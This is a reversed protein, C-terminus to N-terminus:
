KLLQNVAALYNTLKTTKQIIKHAKKDGDPLLYQWFTKMKQLLQAEGGELQNRYTTFLHDHMQLLRSTLEDTTLPFGQKYELALAPNALLGRGIAIGALRPFRTQIHCIDEVTSIDGNYFLPHECAQYFAEFSTLDPIGKYQQKGLRPHLTIHSLPLRNLAPLLALCEDPKEWGLRMKVSFQLNPFRTTLTTILQIAEDPYPLIGSGWKKRVIMPFPCGMNIDAKKYFNEIFLAIISSIKDAELGILQPTLPVNIKCQRSIDRVDKKRIEGHEVRTFPAYYVDVGGFFRAHAARYAADTYGQLPAFHIPFLQKNM